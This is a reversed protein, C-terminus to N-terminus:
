RDTPALIDEGNNNIKSSRWNLSGTHDVDWSPDRTDGYGIPFRDENELLIEMVSCMM